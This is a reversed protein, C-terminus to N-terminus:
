FVEPRAAGATLGSQQFTCGMATQHENPTKQAIAWGGVSPLTENIEQVLVHLDDVRQNRVIRDIMLQSTSGTVLGLAKCLTAYSGSVSSLNNDLSALIRPVSVVALLM